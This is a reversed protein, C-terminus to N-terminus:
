GGLTAGCDRLAKLVTEKGMGEVGLLGEAGPRSKRRERGPIEPIYAHLVRGESVVSRIHNRIVFGAGDSDTLVVIGTKVALARILEDTEPSKFVGFGSTEVINADLFQSLSNKDYKGEVIVTEAVRIKEM